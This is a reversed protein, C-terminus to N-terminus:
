EEESEEDGEEELEIPIEEEVIKEGNEGALDDIPYWHKRGDLKLMEVECYGALTQGTMTGMRDGDNLKVKQVAVSEDGFIAERQANVRVKLGKSPKLDM